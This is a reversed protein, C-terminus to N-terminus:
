TVIGQNLLLKQFKLWEDKDYGVKGVAKTWLRHFISNLLDEEMISTVTDSTDKWELTPCGADKLSMLLSDIQAQIRNYDIVLKTLSGKIMEDELDIIGQQLGLNKQLIPESKKLVELEAYKANIMSKLIVFSEPDRTYIKLQKM